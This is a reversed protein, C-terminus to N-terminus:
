AKVVSASCHLLAQATVRCLGPVTAEKKTLLGRLFLLRELSWVILSESM